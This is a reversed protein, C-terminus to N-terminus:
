LALGQPQNTTACQAKELLEWAEDLDAASVSPSLEERDHDAQLAITLRLLARALAPAMGILKAEHEMESPLSFQHRARPDDSFTILWRGAMSWDCRWTQATIDTTSM